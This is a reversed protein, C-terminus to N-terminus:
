AGLYIINVYSESKSDEGYNWTIMHSGSSHVYGKMLRDWSYESWDIGRKYHGSAKRIELAEGKRLNEQINQLGIQEKSLFIRTRSYAYAAQKRTYGEAIINRMRSAFKSKVEKVSMTRHTQEEFKEIIFEKNKRFLADIFKGETKYESPSKNTAIFTGIKKSKKM